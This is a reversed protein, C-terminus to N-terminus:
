LTHTTKRQVIQIDLPELALKEDNQLRNYLLKFANKGQTNIQYDVTTIEMLESMELNDFGIISIDDPFRYGKKKLSYVLGAAILDTQVLFADPKEVQSAFWDAIKKGDEVSGCDIFLDSSHAPIDHERCFDLYAQIRKQTNRGQKLGYVNIIKRCGSAWLFDLSKKYMEYHDVYVSPVRPDEIRQLTVIPGYKEYHFLVDWENTRYITFIGDLQKNRLMNYAKIEQDPDNNTNFLTVAYGYEEAILIFANILMSVPTTYMTTVIGLNKSIGSKLSVAHQNSIYDLQKIAEEVKKRAKESAYGSQNLIRSVTAPSYGSLKAIDKITTM